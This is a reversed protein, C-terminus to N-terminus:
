AVERRLRRSRRWAPGALPLALVAAALAFWTLPKRPPIDWIYWRNPDSDDEVALSRGDPAWGCDLSTSWRNTDSLSQGKGPIIGYSSGTAADFVEGYAREDRGVNWNLGLARIIRRWPLPSPAYKTALFFRGGPSIDMSINNAALLDTRRGANTLDYCRIGGSLNPAIVLHRSDRSFTLRGLPAGDIQVIEAGTTLNWCIARFAADGFDHGDSVSMNQVLHSGDDSLCGRDFPMNSAPVRTERVQLTELDVVGICRPRRGPIAATLWRGDASFEYPPNLKELFARQKKAVTDWLFLGSKEPDRSLLGMPPCCIAALRGDPSLRDFMGQEVATPSITLPEVTRAILDIQILRDDDEAYDALLWTKGDRSRGLVEVYKTRAVLTAASQGTATDILVVSQLTSVQGPEHPSGRMVLASACDPGFGLLQHLSVGPLFATGRPVPPLICWALACGAVWVAAALLWTGRASRPLLRM